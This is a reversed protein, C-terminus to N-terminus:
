ELKEDMPHKHPQIGVLMSELKINVRPTADSVDYKEHKSIIMYFVLGFPYRSKSFGSEIDSLQNEVDIPYGLRPESFMIQKFEDSYKKFWEKLESKTGTIATREKIM